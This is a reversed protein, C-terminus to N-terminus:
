LVTLKWVNAAGWLLILLHQMQLKTVSDHQYQRSNELPNVKKTDIRGPM